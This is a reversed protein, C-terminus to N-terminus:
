ILIYIYIYIDVQERAPLNHQAELGSSIHTMLAVITDQAQRQDATVAERMAPFRSIYESMEADRKQLM